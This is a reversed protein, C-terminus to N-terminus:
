SCTNCWSLHEDKCVGTLKKILAFIFKRSTYVFSIAAIPNFIFYGLTCKSVPTLNQLRAKRSVTLM